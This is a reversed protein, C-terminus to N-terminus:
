YLFIYIKYNNIFHNVKMLSTDIITAPDTCNAYDVNDQQNVIPTPNNNNPDNQQQAMANALQQVYPIRKKALFVLLAQYAKELATGM